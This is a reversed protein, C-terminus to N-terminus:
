NRKITKSKKGICPEYDSCPMEVYLTYKIMQGVIVFVRPSYFELM